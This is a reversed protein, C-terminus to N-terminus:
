KLYSEAWEYRNPDKRFLYEAVERRQEKDKVMRVIREIEDDTDDAGREKAREFWIDGDDYERRDYCIAGMLTYPQHSDPQCEIAQTACNEAEDLQGLDRFAAGRTVLLASKLDSEKIQKWNVKETVKLANKPEDAKRWNSSASALNRRNGTRHYEQEYFKAELTYHAIAIKGHRSLRNEEILQVVQKPELRQGRELRLMIEYFPALPLKPDVMGYKKKLINFHIEQAIEVTEALGQESLWQIDPDSVQNNDLNRLVTFLPSSIDSSQYQTAKYKSKLKRFIIKDKRKQEIQILKTLNQKKLWECKITDIEEEDDLKKLILYLPSSPSTDPHEEVQYKSKLKLFEVKAKREEEQQLYIELTSQFDSALLWEAEDDSLEERMDLKKLISYLPEEPFRNIHQTANYKVKLKDFRVMEEVLNITDVLGHQNLIEIESDTLNYENDLKWLISYVSSSIPLELESPIHYKTRLQLFEAEIRKKDEARYTHLCIAEMTSFLRNKELWRFELDTLDIGSDAKRLILYLFRDYDAVKYQTVQYKEKLFAFHKKQIEKSDM